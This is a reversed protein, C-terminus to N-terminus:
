HTWSAELTRFYGVVVPKCMTCEALDKEHERFTRSDKAALRLTSPDTSVRKESIDAHLRAERVLMRAEQRWKADTLPLGDYRASLGAM